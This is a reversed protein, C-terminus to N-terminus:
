ADVPVILYDENAVNKAIRYRLTKILAEYDSFTTGFDDQLLKEFEFLIPMRNQEITRTAGMMAYLDSGQIDIKMFSIESPLNLSDITISPVTRGETANPNIGYSGLSAFRVFDQEPYFLSQGETHWVAAEHVVVNTVGNAELNQRLAQCIFPDAEFAHVVGNPGTMRSFLVAMQGFNSGVDLVISGPRIHSEAETVVHADFIGGAKMTSVVADTDVAPLWWRGTATEFLDLKRSAAVLRRRARSEARSRIWHTLRSM